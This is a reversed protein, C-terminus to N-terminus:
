EERARKLGKASTKNIKEIHKTLEAIKNAQEAIKNAQEGINNAQEVIKSNAEVLKTDVESIYNDKDKVEQELTEIHELMEEYKPKLEKYKQANLVIYGRFESLAQAYVAEMTVRKVVDKFVIVYIRKQLCEFSLHFLLKCGEKGAFILTILM